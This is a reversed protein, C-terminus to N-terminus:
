CKGNNSGGDNLLKFLKIGDALGKIYTHESYSYDLLDSVTEFEDFLKGPILSRVESAVRSYEKQLEKYEENQHLLKSTDESRRFIFDGFREDFTKINDM